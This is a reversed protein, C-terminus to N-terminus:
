SIKSSFGKGRDNRKLRCVAKGKIYEIPVSGFIRSDTSDTSNDGRLEFRGKTDIATIRKLITVSQKYPHQALVVDGINMDAGRAVLVVDGDDLTPMMSDGRVRVAKRFRILFLLRDFLLAERM